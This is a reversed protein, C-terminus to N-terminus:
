FVFPDEDEAKCVHRPYSTGNCYWCETDPRYLWTGVVIQSGHTMGYIRMAGHFMRYGECELM